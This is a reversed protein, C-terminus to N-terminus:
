RSRRTSSPLAGCPNYSSTLSERSLPWVEREADLVDPERTFLELMLPFRDDQPKTFRYFQKEGTAKEQIEYGGADIFAWFAEVFPRSLAEACLVIDLDRTARFDLGAEEMALDCASGGILVYQDTFERFHERFLDLGRVM